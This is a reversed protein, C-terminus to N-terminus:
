QLRINATHELSFRAEELSKVRRGHVYLGDILVDRVQHDTDYGAIVSFPVPGDVVRIDRFTIDRIHGRSPAYRRREAPTLRTQNDWVGAQYRERMFTERDFPNDHSFRTHLIALDILKQGAHEIRLNQFVVDRVLASDGNHISLVAGKEVHIFDCDEVRIASIEHTQLEFGIEFGNGWEANWFTCGRVTVAHTPVTPDDGHVSKIAVCDDKTRVFCNEILVRRSRVVDIGDDSDNGSVIKVNRITVDRALLPVLQWSTSNHLVIGEVGVRDCNILNILHLQPVGPYDRPRPLGGDLVGRGRITVDQADRALIVGRVVAGGAIYVTEGSGVELVGVDHVAGGAFYRVAPDNPRPVDREPPNAFVFLPRGVGGNVEISLQAPERLTFRIVSDQWTPRINLRHPRVDV